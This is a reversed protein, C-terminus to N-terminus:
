QTLGGGNRQQQHGRIFNFEAEHGSCPGGRDDAREGAKAPTRTGQSAGTEEPGAILCCSEEQCYGWDCLYYVVCCYTPKCIPNTFGATDYVYCNDFCIGTHCDSYAPQSQQPVLALSATFFPSVLISTALLFASARGRFM